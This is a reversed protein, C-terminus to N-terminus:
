KRNGGRAIRIFLDAYPFMNLERETFAQLRILLFLYVTAGTLVILCVRIFLRGRSVFLADPFIMQVFVIFLVMGGSAVLIARWNIKKFLVLQPVKRKLEVYTIVCLSFLSLVTALASGTIGWLPVFLLNLLWKIIFAGGIFLATRKLFGLGQLISVTTIGLSSLLVAVALIRLSTTGQQDTFLLLNTEPFIMILGVMAGFAVYFSLKLGSEIQQYVVTPQTLWKHKSLNPILALAFSSGLVAGLQILPQGRDFVGKAQMARMQTFGYELLSPLLTFVDALQIILLIMHNLSAVVGFMVIAKVYDRWPIRYTHLHIPKKKMFYIALICFAVFLGAMAAVSAVQGIQYLEGHGRGICVAVLIIISVRVLQEGIQSYATPQMDHNGQFVGRLLAVFPIFLFIFSAMKYSAILHSDGIWAAFKYANLFLVLFFIGNVSLLIFFIPVYFSPFSVEKGEGKLDGVLKSIASPFGYLALVTAMGVIPYVQQYIYFGVDGTLNQLPIRYGASLIKSLVGAFTLILAGKFLKNTRDGAM